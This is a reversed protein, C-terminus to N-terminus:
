SAVPPFLHMPLITTFPMMRVDYTLWLYSYGTPLDLGTNTFTVVGDVFGTATAVLHQTNFYEDNTYYLKIKDIDADSTNLSHATYSNLTVNGSNGTVRVKSKLIANNISGTPIFNLSAQDTTFDNLEKPIIRLKPKQPLM